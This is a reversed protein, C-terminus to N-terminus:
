AASQATPLAPAQRKGARKMGHLLFGITRNEASPAWCLGCTACVPGLAGGIIERM